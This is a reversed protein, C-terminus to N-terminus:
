IIAIVAKITAWAPLLQPMPLTILQIQSHTHRDTETQGYELLLIAQAILVLTPLSMTQPPGNHTQWALGAHKYSWKKRTTSSVIHIHIAHIITTDTKAKNM